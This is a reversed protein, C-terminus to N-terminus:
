FTTEGADASSQKLKRIRATLLGANAPNSEQLTLLIVDSFERLRGSNYYKRSLELHSIANEYDRANYASAALNFHLLGILEELKVQRYISTKFQYQIVRSDTETASASKYSSIKRDIVKDDTTFGDFPDTTELLAVGRDTDVLIFIHHNTEFIRFSYGFHNLALGLLATATLCNYNGNSFIQSFTADGRFTKLFRAHTKVFLQRVFQQEHEHYSDSQSALRDLFNMVRQTSPVVQNQEAELFRLLIAHTERSVSREVQAMSLMPIFLTVLLFKM